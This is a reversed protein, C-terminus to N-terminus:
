DAFDNLEQRDRPAVAALRSKALFYETQARILEADLRVVKASWTELSGPVSQNGSYSANRNAISRESSIQSVKNKWASVKMRLDKADPVDSPVPKIMGSHTPVKDPPTSMPLIISRRDAQEEALKNRREENSWQFRKQWRADLDPAQIRAIGDKHHIEIGVETVHTMIADEYVRGGRITLTGIKEGVAKEWVQRRYKSQYNIFQIELSSIESELTERSQTLESCLAIASALDKRIASLKGISTLLRFSQTELTNNRKDRVSRLVSIENDLMANEREMAYKRSSFRIKKDVVLSLGVGALVLVIMGVLFYFVGSHDEASLM